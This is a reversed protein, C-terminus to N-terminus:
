AFPQEDTVQQYTRADQEAASRTADRIIPLIQRQTWLDALLARRLTNTPLGDPHHAVFERSNFITARNFTAATVTRLDPRDTRLIILGLNPALPVTIRACTGLGVGAGHHTWREPLDSSADGAIGWMCVLNDGVVLKPGAPRYLHWSWLGHELWDPIHCSRHTPDNDNNLRAFWPWLV